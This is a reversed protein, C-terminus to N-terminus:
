AAAAQHVKWTVALSFQKEKALLALFATFAARSQVIAWTEVLPGGEPSAAMLAGLAQGVLICGETDNHTNGTHFLIESRGPVGDVRFTDGKTPSLHRHCTYTGAPICSKQPENNRWPDECTVFTGLVKGADDLLTLDGFSGFPSDAFRALTAKM